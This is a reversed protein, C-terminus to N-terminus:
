LQPEQLQVTVYRFLILLITTELYVFANFISIIIKLTCTVTLMTFIALDVHRTSKKHKITSATDVTNTIPCFDVLTTSCSLSDM